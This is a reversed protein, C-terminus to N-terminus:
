EAVALDRHDELVTVEQWYYMESDKLKTLIPRFKLLM